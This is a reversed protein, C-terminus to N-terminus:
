YTRTQINGTWMKCCKFYDINHLWDKHADRYVGVVYYGTKKCTTWKQKDFDHRIYEHYCSEYRTPHNVPKCCHGEEINHLNNGGTRYLGNLFYGTPCLSWTGPRFIM